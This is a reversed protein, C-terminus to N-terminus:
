PKAPHALASRQVEVEDALHASLVLQQLSEHWCEHTQALVVHIPLCGAETIDDLILSTVRGDNDEKEDDISCPAAHM